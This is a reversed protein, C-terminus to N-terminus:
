SVKRSYTSGSDSQPDDNPSLDISMELRYGERKWAAITATSGDTFHIVFQADGSPRAVVGAKEITKGSLEPKTQSTSM